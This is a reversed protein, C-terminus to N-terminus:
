EGVYGLFHNVAAQAAGMATHVLKPWLDRELAREVEPSLHESVADIPRLEFPDAQVDFQRLAVPDVGKENWRGVWKIAGARVTVELQQAGTHERAPAPAPVLEDPARSGNQAVGDAPALVSVGTMEPPVRLGALTLFTPAVDQLHPVWTLEGPPVNAGWLLFPVRLNEEWLGNAHEMLGHEGFMEGHDATILFVTPRGTQRVAEVYRALCEDTYMVEELYIQHCRAAAARAKAAEEPDPSALAKEIRDLHSSHIPSNRGPLLSDQSEGDGALRGRYEEPALYDTHPDMFHVFHFFPRDGAALEALQEVAASLTREGLPDSRRAWEGRFFLQGFIMVGMQESTCRGIWTHENLWPVLFFGFTALAIPQESHLDYGRDMGTIPGILGNSITAATLYGADRLDQALFRLDSPPVESNHRVGHAMADRGTLMGVHGPLTQDSSSLAYHAWLAEQARLAGAFPAPATPVDPRAPDAFLADARLTDVSILVLDPAGPPPAPRSGNEELRREDLKAEASRLVPVQGAMMLAVLLVGAPVAFLAGAWRLPLGPRAKWFVLLALVLACSHALAVAVFGPETGLVRFLAHLWPALGVFCGLALGTIPQLPKSRLCLASLALVLGVLCWAGLVSYAMVPLRLMAAVGGPQFWGDLLALWGSVAFAALAAHMWGQAAGPNGKAM